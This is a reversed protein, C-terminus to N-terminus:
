DLTPLLAGTDRERWAGKWVGTGYAVDDAVRMMVYRVPDVDPRTTWWRLVNPVVIAVMAVRRARRSFLSALLTIPWWTRTLANAILRGAHLNGRGALRLAIPVRDDVSSLKRALMATSALATGAGVVVHGSLGAGWAVASWRNLRLPTVAGRHRADLSAAASGYSMRQRAAAMATSRPRHSVVATAEYRCRVGRADMRWVLDVDEGYRLAEDFGGISRVVEARMMITAAPVYSIRTGTRVRGSQAGLDLPSESREYRELLSPGPESSVRPAVAGVHDDDFHALLTGWADDDWVVDADVFLVLETTVLTLGTNRAAGPGGAVDRRVVRAGPISDVPVTSGDDVVIVEHADGLSSALYALRQRDEEHAPIVVTVDDRTYRHSARTDVVPHIAGNELLREILSPFPDDIEQENELDDLLEKARPDLRLVRLPSGAVLTEGTPSSRRWWSSDISFRM